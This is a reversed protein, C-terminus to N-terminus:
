YRTSISRKLIPRLNPKPSTDPIYTPTGCRYVPLKTTKKNKYKLYIIIAIIIITVIIGNTAMPYIFQKKTFFQHENDELNNNLTHLKAKLETLETEHATVDILTLNSPTQLDLDRLLTINIEPLYMETDTEYVTGKAQITMDETTLKCKGKLAIRGTHRITKRYELHGDCEIMIQLDAATSYLWTDPQHLAIWKAHNAIIRKINCNKQQRHEYIQIECPANTNIRYVPKSQQCMYESNSQKCNELENKTLILYTLSERDIAILENKVETVSMIKNNDPVPLATVKIIDYTPKAILPFRLITFIKTKDGYASISSYKEIQLWDEAHVPFPFYSGRPIQQTAEKLHAIITEVPMLKLHITGQQINGLYDLINEADRILETIVATVILFHETIDEREFFAQVQVQLLKENRQVIHELTEIHAITTNIVKIQNKIAHEVTQQNNNLLELQENIQKEDDADMTGFLTKAISGIGNIIGRRQNTPPKHVTRIQAMLSKLYKAERRTINEFNTCADQQYQVHFKLTECKLQHQQIYEELQEYRQTLAELDLKIVLKWAEKTHHLRGIKEFHLGPNHNFEEIEYPRETDYPRARIKSNWCILM